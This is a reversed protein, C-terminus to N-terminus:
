LFFPCCGTFDLFHSEFDHEVDDDVLVVVDEDDDDEDEDDDVEDAMDFENNLCLLLM